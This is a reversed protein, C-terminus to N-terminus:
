LYCRGELIENSFKSYYYINIVDWYEAAKQYWNDKSGVPNKINKQANQDQLEAKWM